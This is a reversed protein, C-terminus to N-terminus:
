ALMELRAAYQRRYYDAFDGSKITHWWDPHSQYWRVTLLLADDFSWRPQWGLTRLKTADLAYRRDHGPRDPVHRILSAEAGTLAIIKSVVELNPRETGVGINYVEGPEGVELILALAACHDEVYLWDRQQLGDGYIPLPQGELANTICLPILKEPHQYPGFNNSARTIITNLGYTTHYAHVMLDGAAKSAAYPSRPRLPYSETAREDMPIDGYVEDTSIQIYRRIDHLRAAELLVRTGEVDTRIFDGADLISRDVHTEAAFNFVADCGAMAASATDFNCIDGHIFTVRESELVGRLNALNGAYTLKDLVVVRCDPWRTLAYRVFNSGIFGAGGTILLKM